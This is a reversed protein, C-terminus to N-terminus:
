SEARPGQDRMSSAARFEPDRVFVPGAKFVAQLEPARVIGRVVANIGVHSDLGPRWGTDLMAVRISNRILHVSERM